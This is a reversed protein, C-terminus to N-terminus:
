DVHPRTVVASPEPAELEKVLTKIEAPVNKPLQLFLDRDAKLDTKLNTKLKQVLIETMLNTLDGRIGLLKRLHESMMVTPVAISVVIFVLMIYTVYIYLFYDKTSVPSPTDNYFNKLERISLSAVLASTVVISFRLLYKKALKTLEFIVESSASVKTLHDFLQRTEQNLFALDQALAENTLFPSLPLNHIIAVEQIALLNNFLARKVIDRYILPITEAPLASKKKLADVERQGANGHEWIIATLTEGLPNYNFMPDNPELAEFMRPNPALVLTVLTHIFINAHNRHIVDTIESESIPWDLPNSMESFTRIFHNYLHGTM